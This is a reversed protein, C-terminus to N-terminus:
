TKEIYACVPESDATGAQETMCCDSCSGDSTAAGFHQKAMAHPLLGLM